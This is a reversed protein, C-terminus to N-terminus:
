EDPGRRTTYTLRLLSSILVADPYRLTAKREPGHKSDALLCWTAPCTTCLPERIRIPGFSNASGTATEDVESCHTRSGGLEDGPPKPRTGSRARRSAWAARM